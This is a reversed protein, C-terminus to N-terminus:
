PSVPIYIIELVDGSRPAFAFTITDYGTGVGGSESIVYDNGSGEVFFQGNYLVYEEKGAVTRDIYQTSTFVTNVGNIVGNLPERIRAENAPGSGGNAEAPLALGSIEGEELDLVFHIHKAM